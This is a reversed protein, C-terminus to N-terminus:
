IPNCNLCARRLSYKIRTLRDALETNDYDKATFSDLELYACITHIVTVAVRLVGKNDTLNEKLWCIVDFSESLNDQLYPANGEALIVGLDCGASDLTHKLKTLM